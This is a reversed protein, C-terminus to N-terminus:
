PQLVKAKFAIFGPMAAASSLPMIQASIFWQSIHITPSRRPTKEFRIRKKKNMSETFM